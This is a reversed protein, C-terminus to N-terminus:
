RPQTLKPTEIKPVGAHRGIAHRLELPSQRFAHNM